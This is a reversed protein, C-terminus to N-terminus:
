RADHADDAATLHTAAPHGLEVDADRLSQLSRAVAQLLPLLAPLGRAEADATAEALWDALDTAM